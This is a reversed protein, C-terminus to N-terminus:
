TASTSAVAADRSKGCVKCVGGEGILGICADDPCLEREDDLGGDAAADLDDGSADDPSDTVNVLLEDELPGTRFPGGEPGPRGCVKCKGDDGIVGICAGDLCLSRADWELDSEAV